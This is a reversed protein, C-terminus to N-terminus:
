ALDKWPLCRFGYLFGILCDTVAMFLRIMPVVSDIFNGTRLGAILHALIPQMATSQVLLKVLELVTDDKISNKNAALYEELHTQCISPIPPLLPRSRCSPPSRQFTDVSNWHTKRNTGLSCM